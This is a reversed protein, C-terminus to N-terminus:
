FPFHQLFTFSLLPSSLRVHGTCLCSNTQPKMDQKNAQSSKPRLNPLDPQHSHPCSFLKFVSTTPKRTYYLIHPGRHSVHRSASVGGM